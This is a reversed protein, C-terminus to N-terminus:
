GVGSPLGRFPPAGSAYLVGTARGRVSADDV